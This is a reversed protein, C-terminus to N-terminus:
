SDTCDEDTCTDVVLGDTVDHEGLDSYAGERSPVLGAQHQINGSCSQNNNDEFGAHVHVSPASSTTIAGCGLLTESQSISSCPIHIEDQSVRQFSASNVVPAPGWIDILSASPDLTIDSKDM